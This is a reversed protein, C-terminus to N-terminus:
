PFCCYCTVAPDCGVRTRPNFCTVAASTAATSSTAGWAPAHISVPHFPRTNGVGVLDCGVRTRPNFGSSGHRAKISSSTAGWAPAHISVDAIRNIADVDQTAGWAPAHISVQEEFGLWVPPETAGWAPAHISVARDRVYVPLGALDCGVRTRPNFGAVHFLQFGEERRVGRPHTSQFVLPCSLRVM